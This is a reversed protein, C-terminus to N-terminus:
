FADIIDIVEIGKGQYHPPHDVSNQHNDLNM